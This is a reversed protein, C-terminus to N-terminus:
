NTGAINKRHGSGSCSGGSFTYSMTWLKQHYKPSRITATPSTRMFYGCDKADGPIAAASKTLPNPTIAASSHRRLRRNRQFNQLGPYADPTWTASGSPPLDGTKTDM